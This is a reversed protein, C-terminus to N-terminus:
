GWSPLWTWTPAVSYTISITQGPEIRYEGGARNTSVGSIVVNTVTGGVIHVSATYGTNNTASVTSAPVAPALNATPKHGINNKISIGAQAVTGAITNTNGSFTNGHFNMTVNAGINLGNTNQGLLCATFSIDTSNEIYIGNGGAGNYGQFNCNHFTNGQAGARHVLGSITTSVGSSTIKCNTFTNWAAAEVLFGASTAQDMDVDSFTCFTPAASIGAGVQLVLGSSVAAMVVKSVKCGQCDNEVIIGTSPTGNGQAGDNITINEISVLAGRRLYILVAASGTTYNNFFFINRVRSEFIYDTDSASTFVFGGCKLTSTGQSFMTDVSHNRGRDILINTSCGRFKLNQCVTNRCNILRVGVVATVAVCDIQFDYFGVNAEPSGPFPTESTLDTNFLNGSATPQFITADMGAGAISIKKPVNIGPTLLWRGPGFFLTGGNTTVAALVALANTVATTNNFVGDGVGGSSKINYAIDSKNVYAAAIAVASLGGGVLNIGNPSALATAFELVPPTFKVVTAYFTVNISTTGNGGNVIPRVYRVSDVLEETGLGLTALSTGLSNTLTVWNVNDSSGQLTITAGGLVGEIRVFRNTYRDCLTGDGVDGVHLSNWTVSAIEEPLWRLAAPITAM